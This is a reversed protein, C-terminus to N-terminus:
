WNVSKSRVTNLFSGASSSSASFSLYLLSFSFSMVSLYML